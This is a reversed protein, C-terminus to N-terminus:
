FSRSFDCSFDINTIFPCYRGNYFKYHQLVYWDCFGPVWQNDNQDLGFHDHFHFRLTGSFNNENCQYNDVTITYGHFGHIALALSSSEFFGFSPKGLMLDIEESLGGRKKKVAIAGLDGNHMKLKEAIIREVGM